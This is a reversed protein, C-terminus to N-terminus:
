YNTQLRKMVRENEFFTEIYENIGKSSVSHKVFKTEKKIEQVVQKWINKYIQEYILDEYEKRTKDDKIKKVQDILLEKKLKNDKKNYEEKAKEAERRSKEFDKKIERYAHDKMEKSVKRDFRNHKLKESEEYIYRTFESQVDFWLERKKEKDEPVFREDIGIYKYAYNTLFRKLAKENFIKGIIMYRCPLPYKKYLTNFSNSLDRMDRIKTFDDASSFYDTKYKENIANKFDVFLAYEEKLFKELKQKYYSKENKKTHIDNNTEDKNYNNKFEQIALYDDDQM